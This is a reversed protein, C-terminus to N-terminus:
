AGSKIHLTVTEDSIYSVLLIIICNENYKKIINNCFNFPFSTSLLIVDYEKTFNDINLSERYDCNFGDNILKSVIKQALYIENEIVLINM